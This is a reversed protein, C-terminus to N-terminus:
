RGLVRNQEKSQPSYKSSKVQCSIPIPRPTLLFWFFVSAIRVKGTGLTSNRHDVFAKIAANHESTLKQLATRDCNPSKRGRISPDSVLISGHAM